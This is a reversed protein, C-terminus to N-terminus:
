PKWGWVSWEILLDDDWGGAEDLKEKGEELAVLGIEELREWLDRIEDLYAVRLPYAVIFRSNPGSKLWTQVVRALMAPHDEDYVTDAALIISAKNRELADIDEFIDHEENCASLRSPNKWDLVGCSARGRCSALLSKNLSVNKRLGSVVPVLDTLVVNTNWVAAASLGALGTGAGLEIVPRSSNNQWHDPLKIAHLQKALIYSAGWTVHSLNEAVIDRDESIHINISSTSEKTPIQFTRTSAKMNEKVPPSFPVSLVLLKVHEVNFV